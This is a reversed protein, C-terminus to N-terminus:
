KPDVVTLKKTIGPAHREADELIASIPLVREHTKWSVTL